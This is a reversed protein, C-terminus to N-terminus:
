SKPLALLGLKEHMKMRANLLTNERVMGPIHPHSIDSASSKGCIFEAAVDLAHTNINPVLARMFAKFTQAFNNQMVNKLITETLREHEQLKLTRRLEQQRAKLTEIKEKQLDQPLDHFRPQDMLNQTLAFNIVNCLAQADTHNHMTGLIWKAIKEAQEAQHMTPPTDADKQYCKKIAETTKRKLLAQQEILNGTPNIKELYKRTFDWADEQKAIKGFALRLPSFNPKLAEIHGWQTQITLIAHGMAKADAGSVEAQSEGVMFSPAKFFIDAITHPTSLHELTQVIFPIHDAEQTDPRSMRLARNIYTAAIGHQIDIEDENPNMSSLIYLVLGSALPKSLYNELTTQLKFVASKFSYIHYDFRIAALVQPATEQKEPATQPSQETSKSDATKPESANDEAEYGLIWAVQEDSSPTLISSEKETM